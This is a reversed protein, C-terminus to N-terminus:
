TVIRVKGQIPKYSASGYATKTQIRLSIPEISRFCELEVRHSATPERRLVALLSCECWPLESIEGNEGGIIERDRLFFDFIEFRHQGDDPALNHIGSFLVCAKSRRLKRDTRVPRRDRM